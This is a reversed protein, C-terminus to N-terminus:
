GLGEASPALGRKILWTRLETELDMLANREERFTFIWDKKTEPVDELSTLIEQDNDLWDVTDVLMHQVTAADNFEELNWYHEDLSKRWELQANPM